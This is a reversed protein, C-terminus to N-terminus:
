QNRRGAPQASDRKRKAEQPQASDRKRKAEQPQASDRKRKAEQPQASDRKHKAAGEITFNLNPMRNPQAGRTGYISNRNLPSLARAEKNEPLQIGCRPM